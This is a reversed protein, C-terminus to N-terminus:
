PFLSLLYLLFFATSFVLYHSLILWQWFVWPLLSHNHTGQFFCHAHDLNGSSGCCLFGATSAKQKREPLLHSCKMIKNSLHRRGLEHYQSSSLRFQRGGSICNMYRSNTSPISTDQLKIYESNMSHEVM